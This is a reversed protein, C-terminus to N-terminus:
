SPTILNGFSRAQVESYVDPSLGFNDASLDGTLSVLKSETLLKLPLSRDQFATVLRDQTSTSPRNLAYVKTIRKDELLAALIHSGINGTSGTLVVVIPADNIPSTREGRQVRLDATYKQVM